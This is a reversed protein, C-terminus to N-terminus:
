EVKRAGIRGTRSRNRGAVGADSVETTGMSEEEFAIEHYRPLDDGTEPDTMRVGISLRCLRKQSPPVRGWRWPVYSTRGVVLVCGDADVLTCTVGGNSGNVKERSTMPAM